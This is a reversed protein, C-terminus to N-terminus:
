KEFQNLKMMGMMINVIEKVETMQTKNEIMQTKVETMQTKNETMQAIVQTKNETMQTTIQTKLQKMEAKIEGMSTAHLKKTFMKM